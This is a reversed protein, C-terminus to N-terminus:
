VLVGLQNITQVKLSEKNSNGKVKENWQSQSKRLVRVKDLLYIRGLQQSAEFLKFIIKLYTVTTCVILFPRKDIRSTHAYLELQPESELSSHRLRSYFELDHKLATVFIGLKSLGGLVGM